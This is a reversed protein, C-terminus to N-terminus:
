ITRMAREYEEETILDNILLAEIVDYDLSMYVDNNLSDSLLDENNDVLPVIYNNFWKRDLKERDLFM